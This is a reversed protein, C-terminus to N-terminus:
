ELVWEAHFVDHIRQVKKSGLGTCLALESMPANAIGKLSGYNRYLTSADTRNVSRIATLCDQLRPIFDTELKEQITAANKKEYIKYTEIYRACESLSWTLM